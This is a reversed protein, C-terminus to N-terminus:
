FLDKAKPKGTAKAANIYTVLANLTVPEYHWVQNDLIFLRSKESTYDYTIFTYSKMKRTSLRGGPFTKKLINIMDVVFDPDQAKAAFSFQRGFLGGNWFYFYEPTTEPGAEYASEYSLKGFVLKLEDLHFIQGKELGYVLMSPSNPATSSRYKFSTGINFGADYIQKPSMGWTVSKKGQGMCVTVWVVIVLIILSMMLIKKM